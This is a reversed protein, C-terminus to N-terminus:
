RNKVHCFFLRRSMACATTDEIAWHEIIKYDFGQNKIALLEQFISMDTFWAVAAWIVFKADRIGKIVTFGCSTYEIEPAISKILM